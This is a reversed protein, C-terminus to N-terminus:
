PLVVVGAEDSVIVAGPTFVVGALHSLYTERALETSTARAHNTGLAKIGIDLPAVLPADRVAGHIIVRGM